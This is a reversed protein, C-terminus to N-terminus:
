HRNGNISINIDLLAIFCKSVVWSKSYKLAPHFSNVSTIFYCFFLITRKVQNVGDTQKSLSKMQTEMIEKSQCLDICGM